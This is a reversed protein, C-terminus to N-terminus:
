LLCAKGKKDKELVYQKKSHMGLSQCTVKEREKFIQGQYIEAMRTWAGGLGVGSILAKKKGREHM